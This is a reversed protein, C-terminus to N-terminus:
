LTSFISLGVLKDLIVHNTHYFNGIQWVQRNTTYM